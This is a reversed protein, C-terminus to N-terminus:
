CLKYVNFDFLIELDFSQSLFFCSNAIFSSFISVFQIALLNSSLGQVEIPNKKFSIESGYIKM